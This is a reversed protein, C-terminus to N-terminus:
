WKPEVHPCYGIRRAARVAVYCGCLGCLGGRLKACTDCIRLRREYEEAGTKEEEPIRDIYDQLKLLEKEFMEKTWTCRPCFRFRREGERYGPLVSEADASGTGSERSIVSSSSIGNGGSM